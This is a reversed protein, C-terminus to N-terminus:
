SSRYFTMSNAPQDTKLRDSPSLENFYGLESNTGKKKSFNMEFDYSPPDENM